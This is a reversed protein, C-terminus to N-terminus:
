CKKSQNKKMQALGIKLAEIIIDNKRTYDFSM